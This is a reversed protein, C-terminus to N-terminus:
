LEPTKVHDIKGTAGGMLLPIKPRVPLEVRGHNGPRVAAGQVSAKRVRVVCRESVSVCSFSAAQSTTMQTRVRPWHRLATGAACDAARRGDGEDDDM